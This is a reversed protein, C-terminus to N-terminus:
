VDCVVAPRLHSFSFNQNSLHREIYDTVRRGFASLLPKEGDSASLCVWYHAVRVALWPSYHSQHIL